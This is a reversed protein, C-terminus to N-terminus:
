EIRYCGSGEFEVGRNIGQSIVVAIDFQNFEGALSNWYALNIPDIRSSVLKDYDFKLVFDILVKENILVIAGSDSCFVNRDFFNRHNYDIKKIKDITFMSEKPYYEAFPAGSYPFVKNRIEDLINDALLNPLEIKIDNIYLADIIIYRFNIALELPENYLSINKM